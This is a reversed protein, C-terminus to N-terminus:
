GGIKIKFTQGNGKKRNEGYIKSMEEAKKLMMENYTKQDVKKGKVPETIDIKEQANMVIKNCIMVTSGDNIELILGPLGWYKDPGHSVPIQPTYWATTVLTEKVVKEKEATDSLNLQRREVEKTFTAKYCTYNGIQKTESELQWEMKPLSDKILFQKSFAERQSTYTKAAVDKYYIDNGSGGLNIGVINIGTGSADGADGLSEVEKYVSQTKNFSLVYEKQFKKQLLANLQQQQASSAATSDLTIEVKRKTKYYAKGQLDQANVLVTAFLFLSTFINLHHKM